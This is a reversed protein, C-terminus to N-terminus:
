KERHEKRVGLEFKGDREKDQCKTKWHRNYNPADQM